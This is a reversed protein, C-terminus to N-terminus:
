LFMYYFLDACEICLRVSNVRPYEYALHSFLMSQGPFFGTEQMVRMPQVTDISSIPEVVTDKKIPIIINKTTM